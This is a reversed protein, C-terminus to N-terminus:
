FRLGIGFSVVLHDFNIETPSAQSVEGWDGTWRFSPLAASLAKRQQISLNGVLNRLSPRKFL